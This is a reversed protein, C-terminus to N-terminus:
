IKVMWKYCNFRGRPNEEHKPRTLNADTWSADDGEKGRGPAAGGETSTAVGGLQTVSGKWLALILESGRRRREAISRGTAEGRSSFGFCQVPVVVVPWGVRVARSQGEVAIFFTMEIKAVRRM